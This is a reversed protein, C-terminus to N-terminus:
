WGNVRDWEAVVEIDGDVVYYKDHAAATICAHNPGIRVKDGLAFHQVAGEGTAAGHEQFVRDIMWGGALPKGELDWVDGYGADDATDATSRDKSLALAGADILFRNKESNVGIVSALVTM